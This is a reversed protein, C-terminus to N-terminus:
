GVVARRVGKWELTAQDGSDIVFGHEFLRRPGERGGWQFDNLDVHKAPMTFDIPRGRGFRARLYALDDVDRAIQHAWTDRM